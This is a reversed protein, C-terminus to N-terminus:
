RAGAKWKSRLKTCCYPQKVRRANGRKRAVVLGESAREGETSKGPKGTIRGLKKRRNRLPALLAEGTEPADKNGHQRKWGAPTTWRTM